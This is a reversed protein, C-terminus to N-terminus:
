SPRAGRQHLHVAPQRPHPSLGEAQGHHGLHLHDDRPRRGVQQYPAGRAGRRLRRAGTLSAIEDVRWLHELGPHAAKVTEEHADLEVFAAKAGSDTLIWAVQETASTEYIPM